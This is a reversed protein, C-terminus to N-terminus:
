FVSGARFRERTGEIVDPPLAIGALMARWERELEDQSMGYADAFDGGSQYLARLRAAGYRDLLFRLFSGAITYSREFSVGLFDLSLLADISPVVGMEQMARVAQHPTLRGDSTPWDVAVALGEILGPSVLAPIGLVRRASVGFWPDGFESAVAH